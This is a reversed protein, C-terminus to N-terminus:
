ASFFMVAVSLCDFLEVYDLQGFGDLIGRGYRTAADQLQVVSVDRHDLYGLWIETRRRSDHKHRQTLQADDLRPPV